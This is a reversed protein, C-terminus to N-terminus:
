ATQPTNITSQTINFCEKELSLSTQETFDRAWVRTCFKTPLGKDRKMNAQLMGKYQRSALGTTIFPTSANWMMYEYDTTLPMWSGSDDFEYEAGVYFDDTLSGAAVMFVVHANFQCYAQKTKSCLLATYAGHPGTQYQMKLAGPINATVGIGNSLLCLCAISIRMPLAVRGM